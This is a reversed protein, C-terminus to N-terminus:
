EEIFGKGAEIAELQTPSLHELSADLVDNLLPVNLDARSRHLDAM